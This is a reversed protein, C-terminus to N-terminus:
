INEAPGRDSYLIALKGLQEMPRLEGISIEDDTLLNPRSPNIQNRITSRVCTGESNLNGMQLPAIILLLTQRIAIPHEGWLLRRLDTRGARVWIKVELAAEGWGSLLANHIRIGM